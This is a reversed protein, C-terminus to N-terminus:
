GGGFHGDMEEIESGRMGIGSDVELGAFHAAMHVAVGGIERFGLCSRTSAANEEEAGERQRNWIRWGWFKVAGDVNYAADHAIDERGGGFGLGTCTEVIGLIGAGKTDGEFFHIQGLRRRRDLHVVGTGMADDIVSYFLTLGFGNGHTEIPYAVTDVLAMEADMPLWSICVQCVIEGLVMQWFVM